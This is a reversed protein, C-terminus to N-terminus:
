SKPLQDATHITLMGDRTAKLVIHADAQQDTAEKSCTFICTRARRAYLDEMANSRGLGRHQVFQKLVQFVKQARPLPLLMTPKQMCLVEPDSVLARALHLLSLQTQSLSKDLYNGAKIDDIIRKHIDLQKCIYVVRGMCNSDQDKMSRPVGFILNEFLTGTSSFEPDRTVFVVHLHPPMFVAGQINKPMPSTASIHRLMGGKNEGFLAIMRGQPLNIEDGGPSLMRIPEEDLDKGSVSNSNDVLFKKIHENGQTDHNELAELDTESNLLGAVNQLQPTVGHVGNLVTYMKTWSRGLKRTASVSVLYVGVSMTGDLVHKGFYVSVAVSVFQTVWHSLYTNHMLKFNSMRRAKNYEDIKNRTWQMAFPRQRYGLILRINQLTNVVENVFSDQATNLYLMAEYTSRRRWCLILSLFIPYVMTAAFLLPHFDKGFLWPSILFYVHLVFIEGLIASMVIIQNHCSSVLSLSDRAMAMIFKGTTLSDLSEQTYYLMRELLATQLDRRLPGGVSVSLKLFAASHEVAVMILSFSNLVVLALLQHGDKQGIHPLFGGGHQHNDTLVRDVLFQYVVLMVLVRINRAQVMLMRWCTAKYVKSDGWAMKIYECLLLLGDVRQENYLESTKEVYLNSPFRDKDYVNVYVTSMQQTLSANKPDRLKVVFTRCRAWSDQDKIGVEIECMSQHPEFVAKAEVRAHTQLRQELEESYYTVESTQSLDGLKLIVLSVRGDSEKAHRTDKAFQIFAGMDKASQSDQAKLAPLQVEERLKSVHESEARERASNWGVFDFVEPFRARDLSKLVLM